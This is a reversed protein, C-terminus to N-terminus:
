GRKQEILKKSSYILMVLAPVTFLALWPWRDYHYHKMGLVIAVCSLCIWSLYWCVRIGRFPPATRWKRKGVSYRGNVPTFKYVYFFLLHIILWGGFVSFVVDTPWHAATMVRATAMAMTFGIVAVMMIRGVARWRNDSSCYILVYALGILTIASATHGSPFSARYTGEDLFYPGVDYWQNFERTGRLIKKPRPRAM